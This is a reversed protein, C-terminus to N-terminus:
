VVLDKLRAFFGPFSIDVCSANKIAIKQAAVLAAISFSM